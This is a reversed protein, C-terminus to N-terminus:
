GALNVSRDLVNKGPAKPSTKVLLYVMTAIFGIAHAAMAIFSTYHLYKFGFIPIFMYLTMLIAM